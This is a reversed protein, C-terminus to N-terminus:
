GEELLGNQMREGSSQSLVFHPCGDSFILLRTAASATQLLRFAEPVDILNNEIADFSLFKEPLNM